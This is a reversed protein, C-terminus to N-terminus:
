YDVRDILIPGRWSGLYLSGYTEYNDINFGIDEQLYDKVSQSATLLNEIAQKSVKTESIPLLSHYLNWLREIPDPHTKVKYM